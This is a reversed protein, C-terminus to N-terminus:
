YEALSHVKLTDSSAASLVVLTVVMKLGMEDVSEHAKMEATLLDLYSGSTEASMEDSNEVTSRAMLAVKGM